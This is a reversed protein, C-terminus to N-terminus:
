GTPSPLLLTHQFSSLTAASVRPKVTVKSKIKTTIYGLVKGKKVDTEDGLHMLCNHKFEVWEGGIESVSEKLIIQFSVESASAKSLGIHSSVTRGMGLGESLEISYM